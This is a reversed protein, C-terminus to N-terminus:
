YNFVKQCKKNTCQGTHNVKNFRIYSGCKECTVAEQLNYVADCFTKAENFTLDEDDGHVFSNGLYRVQEVEFFLDDYDYELPSGKTQKKISIKAANLYDLLSHPKDKMKILASNAICINKLVNELLRRSAHVAAVLDNHILHKQIIQIDTKHNSLHPGEDLNWSTIEVYMFKGKEKFKWDKARRLNRIQNFWTKNHTTLILQYDEFEDLLLRAIREKHSLDVTAVIDDLIIIPVNCNEKIFALFICLGLSDLHGESSYERPDCEENFTNIKLKLGTSGSVEFKPSNISDEGHIFNYYENIRDTLEELTNKIYKVKEKKYVDYTAKALAYEKEISDIDKQIKDLNILLTLSQNFLELTREYEKDANFYRSELHIIIDVLRSKSMGLPNIIESASIEYNILSELNSILTEISSINEMQIELIQSKDDDILQIQKEILKFNENLEELYSIFEYTEEKLAEISTMKGNLDEIELSLSKGLEENDIDSKCVPCKSSNNLIIYERSDNLLNLLLSANKASELYLEEYRKLIQNLKDEKLSIGKISDIITIAHQKNSSDLTEELDKLYKDFNTEEEINPFKGQIKENLKSICLGYQERSSEYNLAKNKKTLKKYRLKFDLGLAASLSRIYNTYEEKKDALSTELKNHGKRFITEVDDLYDYGFLKGIAEYRKKPQSDIFTLLKKRNLINSGNAIEDIIPRIEEPCNWGDENREITLGNGLVAKVNTKGNNEGFFRIAKDHDIDLSGKLSDVQSTFLYEIANTISSKGTGNEGLLILSRTNLKLDEHKIGRFSNIEM